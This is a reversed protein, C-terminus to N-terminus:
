ANMMKGDELFTWDNAKITEIIADESTLYDYEKELQRYILRAQVRADELIKEELAYYQGSTKDTLNGYYDSEISMTMEHSYRSDSSIISVTVGEAQNYLARNKGALKNVKLWKALDVTATFCAGDGQSGFGSFHIEADNFGMDSLTTKWDEYVCDWWDYDINCDYLSEIAKARADVGLEDISFLDYSKTITQM